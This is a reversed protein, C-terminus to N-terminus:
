QYMFFCFHIIIMICNTESLSYLMNYQLVTYQLNVIRLSQPSSVVLYFKLYWWHTLIFYINNKVLALLLCYLNSHVNIESEPLSLVTTLKEM